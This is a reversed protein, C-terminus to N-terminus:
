DSDSVTQIGTGIQKRALHLFNRAPPVLRGKRYALALSVLRPAGTLPRFAVGAVKVQAISRPVLSVGLGAAVLSVISVIQSAMQGPRPAFGAARCADVVADLLGIGVSHPTLIFPDESLGSLDIPAEKQALPHSGPLAAVLPEDTLFEETLEKPDSTSPRLIAMDIRDDLLAQVLALSNAETVQLEVDPFGTRYARICAPVIGNLAATGTYGLRLLGTEGAAAKRAQRVAESAQGPLTRAIREFARGAETLEAGHPVRRFLQTGIETELAKIQQSLPPQAIGLIEAARTFNGEDAVALFYRIHRLEM